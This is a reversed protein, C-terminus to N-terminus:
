CILCSLYVCFSLTWGAVRSSGKPRLMLFGSKGAEVIIQLGQTFEIGPLKTYDPPEVDSPSRDQPWNRAGGPETGPEPSGVYGHSAVQKLIPSAQHWFHGKREM